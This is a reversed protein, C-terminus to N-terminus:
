NTDLGIIPKDMTKKLCSKLEFYFLDKLKSKFFQM